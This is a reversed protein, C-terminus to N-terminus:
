QCENYLAIGQAIESLLSVKEAEILLRLRDVENPIKNVQDFVAVSWTEHHKKLQDWDRMVNVRREKRTQVEDTRRTLLAYNRM